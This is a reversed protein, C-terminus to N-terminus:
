ANKTLKYIDEYDELPPAFGLKLAEENIRMAEAQLIVYLEMIKEHQKDTLDILEQLRDNYTKLM